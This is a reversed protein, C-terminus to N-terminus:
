IVQHLLLSVQEMPLTYALEALRRREDACPIEISDNMVLFAPLKEIAEQKARTTAHSMYHKTMEQTMHGVISQVVALSIGVQGAYYCFVHRMSHLDKISIAKRNEFEKVTKINLGELFRKIRYSILSADKLYMEAHLPFVYESEQPLSRLYHERHM